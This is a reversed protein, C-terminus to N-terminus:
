MECQRQMEAMLHRLAEDDRAREAFRKIAMAVATYDTGGAAEGIERLTMGTYRRAAWLLLPGVRNRRCNVWSVHSLNLGQIAASLNADPTQLILHYHNDLEVHGHLVVRFHEVMEGLSEFFHEHEADNEFVARREIGRSTVHYWGDAIDVRLPRAM